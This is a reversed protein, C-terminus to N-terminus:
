GVRVLLSDLRGNLRARDQGIGTAALTVLPPDLQARIAITTATWFSPNASVGFAGPNESAATTGRYASQLATGDTGSGVDTRITVYGSPSANYFPVGTDADMCGFTLWLTPESDWGAPNLDPSNPASALSDTSAFAMFSNLGVGTRYGVIRFAQISLEINAVTGISVNAPEGGDAVKYYYWASKVAGDGSEWDHFLAFGEDTLNVGNFQGSNTATCIAVILLDGSTIGGSGTPYPLVVSAGVGDFNIGSAIEIAPTSTAAVRPIPFILSGLFMFALFFAIRGPHTTFIRDYIM